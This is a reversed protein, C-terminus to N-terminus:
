ADTDYEPVESRFGADRAELSGGGPVRVHSGRLGVTGVGREGVVARGCCCGGGAGCAGCTKGLWWWCGCLERRTEAVGGARPGDGDRYWCAWELDSGGGVGM